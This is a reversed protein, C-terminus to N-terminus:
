VAPIFTIAGAVKVGVEAEILSNPSLPNIKWSAPTGPLLIYGLASDDPFKLRFNGRQGADVWDKLKAANAPVMNVTFTITQGDQMAAVYEKTRAPSQMHTAEVQDFVVGIGEINKVEAILDYDEPSGGDGLGLECQYAISAETAIDM